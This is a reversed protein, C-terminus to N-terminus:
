FTWDPTNSTICDLHQSSTKLRHITQAESSWICPSRPVRRREHPATMGAAIIVALLLRKDWTTCLCWQPVLDCFVSHIHGGTIVVRLTHRKHNLRGSMVVNHIVVPDPAACSFFCVWLFMVFLHFATIHCLESWTHLKDFLCDGRNFGSVQMAAWYTMSVICVAVTQKQPKQKAALLPKQENGSM